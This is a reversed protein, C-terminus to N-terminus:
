TQVWHRRRTFRTNMSSSNRACFPVGAAQYAKTVAVPDVGDNIIGKSPSKRKFEAIIGSAHPRSLGEVLSITKRTYLADAKIVELPKLQKREVVETRKREVITDLINM